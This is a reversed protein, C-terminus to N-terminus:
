ASVGKHTVYPGPVTEHTPVQDKCTPFGDSGWYLRDIYLVRENKRSGEENPDYAHYVLWDLGKADQIIACHGTGTGKTMHSEIVTKGRDSRDIARGDEGVYPGYMSESRGVVVHYTSRLGDCCSGTSLYLYYFGNKKQIFSAEYNTGEYMQYGGIMVKNAVADALGNKLATGEANLEVIWIGDGSGFSMYVKGDDDVFVDQDSSNKVGIEDSRFLKGSNTWPGSPSPAYALGIGPNNWYGRTLTYYYVWLNNIKVLCPANVQLKGNADTTGTLWTLDSAQNPFVTGAYRWSSLDVSRWIAGYDFLVKYDSDHVYTNSAALYFYGDQDNHTVFPDAISEFGESDNYGVVFSLPNSYQIQLPHIGSEYEESSHIIQSQTSTSGGEGSGSNFPECATTLAVLLPILLLSPKRM